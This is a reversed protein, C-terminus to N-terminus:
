QIVMIDLWPLVESEAPKLYNYITRASLDLPFYIIKETAKASIAGAVMGAASGPHNRGTGPAMM